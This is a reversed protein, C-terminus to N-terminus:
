KFYYVAGADSGATDDYSAGILLATGPGNIAVSRGFYKNRAPDSAYFKKEQTWINGNRSFLYVSGDASLTTDDGYAGVVALTADANLSCAMGFWDSALGDSATLKAPSSWAAGSRKFVYVSGSDTGKDDDLYAGILAYTGDYNLAVSSGFQDGAVSDGGNLKTQQTWVTGNRTFVYVSGSNAGRDDDNPAGVLAYNGDGSMAVSWGFMDNQAFDSAYFKQIKSWYTDPAVRTFYYVCGADTTKDDNVHAGVLAMTADSNCAISQGFNDGAKFDNPSFKRLKGWTTLAPDRTYMYINGANTANNDDNPAGILAITADYNIAVGTGFWASVSADFATFKSLEKYDKLQATTLRSARSWASKGYVLGKKRSRAYYTTGNKLAM